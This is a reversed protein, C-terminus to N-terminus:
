VLHSSVDLDFSAYVFITNLLKDMSSTNIHHMSDLRRVSTISTCESEYCYFWGMVLRYLCVATGSKEWGRECKEMMADIVLALGYRKSSSTEYMVM